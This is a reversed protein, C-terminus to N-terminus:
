LGNIIMLHLHCLFPDIICQYYDFRRTWYPLPAAYSTVHLSSRLGLRLHISPHSEPKRASIYWNPLIIGLDPTSSPPHKLQPAGPLDF